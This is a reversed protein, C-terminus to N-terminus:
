KVEATCSRTAFSLGMSVILLVILKEFRRADPSTTRETLMMGEHMTVLTYLIYIYIDFM